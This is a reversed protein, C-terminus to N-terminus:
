GLAKKAEMDKRILEKIYGQKNPQNELWELLEAETKRNIGLKIQQINDRIYEKVYTGHDRTEKVVFKM